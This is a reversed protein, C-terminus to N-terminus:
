DGAHAGRVIGPISEEDDKPVLGLIDTDFASEKSIRVYDQYFKFAEDDMGRNCLTCTHTESGKKFLQNFAKWLGKQRIRDVILILFTVVM